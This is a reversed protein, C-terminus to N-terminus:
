ALNLKNKVKDLMVFYCILTASAVAAIFILVVLSIVAMIATYSLQDIILVFGHLMLTGGAMIAIESVFTIVMNVIYYIGIAALLKQKKAVIAGITVCLEVLVISFAGMCAFLILLELALVPTWAGFVDWILSFASGIFEFVSSDPETSIILMAIFICIILLVAHLVHWIFTNLTKSFILTERKVPLTFTLYGEDTYLTKYFRYHTLVATLAISAFAAFLAFIGAIMALVALFSALSEGDLNQIAFRMFFSGVVTLGVSSLAIIWWIKLIARVDYKMLKKFM